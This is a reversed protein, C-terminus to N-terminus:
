GTEILDLLDDGARLLEVRFALQLVVTVAFLERQLAAAQQLADGLGALQVFVQFANRFRLAPHTVEGRPALCAQVFKRVRWHSERSKLRKLSM